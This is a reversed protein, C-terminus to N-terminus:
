ARLPMPEKVPVVQETGLGPDVVYGVYLDRRTLQPTVLHYIQDPSLDMHIPEWDGPLNLLDAVIRAPERARWIPLWRGTAHKYSQTVLVRNCQQSDIVIFM